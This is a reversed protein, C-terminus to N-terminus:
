VRWTPLKTSVTEAVPGTLTAGEGFISQLVAQPASAAYHMHEDARGFGADGVQHKIRDLEYRINRIAYQTPYAAKVYPGLAIRLV